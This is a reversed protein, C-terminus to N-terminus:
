RREGADQSGDGHPTERPQLQAALQARWQYLQALAQLRALELAARGARLVIPGDERWYERLSTELQTASLEGRGARQLLERVVALRGAAAQLEAERERDADVPSDGPKTM